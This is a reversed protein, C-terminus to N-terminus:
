VFKRTLTTHSLSDVFFRYCRATTIVSIDHGPLKKELINAVKRLSGQESALITLTWDTLFSFTQPCKQRAHSVIGSAARKSSSANEIRRRVTSRIAVAHQDIASRFAGM